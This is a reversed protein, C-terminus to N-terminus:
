LARQFRLPICARASISCIPRFCRHAQQFICGACIGAIIFRRKELRRLATQFIGGLYLPESADEFCEEYIWWGIETVKRGHIERELYVTEGETNMVSYVLYSDTEENYLYLVGDIVEDAPKEETEEGAAFTQTDESEEGACFLESDEGDGSSFIGDEEAINGSEYLKAM